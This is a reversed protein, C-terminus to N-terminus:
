ATESFFIGLPVVLTRSSDTAPSISRAFYDNSGTHGVLASNMRRTVVVKCGGRETLERRSAQAKASDITAKPNAQELPSRMGLRAPSPEVCWPTREPGQWAPSVRLQEMVKLLVPLTM